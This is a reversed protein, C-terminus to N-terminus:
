EKEDYVDLGLAHRMAKEDDDGTGGGAPPKEVEAGESSTSEVFDAWEEGISKVLDEAGKVKGDEGIEISDVDSVKLVTDIRKDSIKADKLLSRYADLKAAHAAKAAQESKYGEYDKKLAEYKEKYSDQGAAELRAKADELQKELDAVRDSDAKYGDREKKLADVTETHMSIIEDIKEDEIGMAKLMKRSLAMRQEMGESVHRQRAVRPDCSSRVGVM